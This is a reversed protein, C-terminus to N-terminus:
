VLLSNYFAGRSLGVKFPRVQGDEAATMAGSKLRAETLVDLSPPKIFIIYPKIDPTRLFKLAQM